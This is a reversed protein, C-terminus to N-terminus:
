SQEVPFGAQAYAKRLLENKKKKWGNMDDHSRLRNIEIPQNEEEEKKRQSQVEEESPLNLDKRFDQVIRSYEEKAKEFSNKLEEETNGQVMGEIVKGKASTILDKRFNELREKKLEKEVVEARNMAEATADEMATLKKQLVNITENIASEQKTTDEKSVSLEKVKDQLKTIEKYLQDKSIKAGRKIADNILEKVEDPSYKKKNDLEVKNQELATKVVDELMNKTEEDKTKKDAEEKAKRDADEKAKKEAESKEAAESEQKLQEETKETM